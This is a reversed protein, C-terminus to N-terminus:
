HFYQKVIEVAAGIVAITKLLVMSAGQPIKGLFGIKVLDDQRSVTFVWKSM